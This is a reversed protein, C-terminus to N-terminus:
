HALPPVGPLPPIVSLAPREPHPPLPSPPVLLSPLLLSPLPGPLAPATGPLASTTGPLTPLPGPLTPSPGPAPASPVPTAPSTPGPQASVSPGAPLPGASGGTGSGAPASAGPAPVTSPLAARLDARIAAVLTLSRDLDSRASTPLVGALDQLRAAQGASWRQLGVLLSPANGVRYASWLLDSGSRTEADMDELTERVLEGDAGAAVLSGPLATLAQRGTSLARAERLRTEALQLHKQGRDVISVSSRLQMAEVARKTGYLPEGPLSRSAGVAIGVAALVGALALAGVALPRRGLLGAMWSVAGALPARAADDGPAPLVPQLSAVALLRMRLADRFHEDPQTASETARRALLLGGSVRIDEDVDAM